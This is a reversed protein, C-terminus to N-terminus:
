QNGNSKVTLILKRFELYPKARGWLWVVLGVLKTRRNKKISALTELRSSSTQGDGSWVIIGDKVTNTRDPWRKM